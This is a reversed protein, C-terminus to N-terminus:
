KAKVVELCVGAAVTQGMDRIAFKALEPFDANKEIVFPKTPTVKIKAADGTKIFDPHEQMVAGTRPDIKAIIETITCAVSATHCHFVPTYGKTM